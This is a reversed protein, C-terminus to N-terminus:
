KKLEEVKELIKENMGKVAELREKSWTSLMAVKVMELEVDSVAKKKLAIKKVAM